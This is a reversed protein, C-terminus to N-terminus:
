ASIKLGKLILYAVSHRRAHANILNGEFIKMKNFELGNDIGYLFRNSM